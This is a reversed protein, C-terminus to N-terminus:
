KEFEAIQSVTVDRMPAGKMWAAYWDAAHQASQAADWRQHWGLRLVAKTPDLLAPQADPQGTAAAGGSQHAGAAALVLPQCGLRACVAEALWAATRADGARPGFNWAEAFDGGGPPFLRQALALCGALADLVHLWPRFGGPWAAPLQAAHSEAAARVCDPVLRGAGFDGGGILHGARVTAVAPGEDTGAAFYARRFASVVLEAGAKGASGPEGGCLSVPERPAYCDAATSAVVARIPHERSVVRVAELLSATGVVNVSIAEVTPQIGSRESQGALHFVIDPKAARLAATLKDVDRIDGRLWTMTHELGCLRYMSPVTPLDDSYGIVAAGLRHLWLSLWTGVFGTHGTVFVRKGQWFADDMM